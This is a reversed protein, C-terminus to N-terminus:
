PYIKKCNGSKSFKYKNPDLLRQIPISYDRGFETIKLAQNEYRLEVGEQLKGYYDSLFLLKEESTDPIPEPQLNSDLILIERGEQKKQTLILVNCSPILVVPTTPPIEYDEALSHDLRFRGDFHYKYVKLKPVPTEYEVGLGFYTYESGLLKRSLIKTPKNYPRIYLNYLKEGSGLFERLKSEFDSEIAKVSSGALFTICLLFYLKM